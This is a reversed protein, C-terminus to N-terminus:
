CQGRCTWDRHLVIAAQLVRRRVNTRVARIQSALISSLDRSDGHDALTRTADDRSGVILTGRDGPNGQAGEGEGEVTRCM